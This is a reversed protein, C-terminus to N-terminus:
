GHGAVLGYLRANLDLGRESTRAAAV